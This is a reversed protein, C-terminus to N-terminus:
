KAIIEGSFVFLLHERDQHFFKVIGPTILEIQDFDFETVMTKGAWSFLGSPQNQSQVAVLDDGLFNIAEYKIPLLIKESDSDFLGAQGNFDQVELLHAPTPPRLQWISKFGTPLILQDSKASYLGYRFSNIPGNAVIFIDDNIPGALCDSKGSVRSFVCPVVLRNHRSCFIGERESESHHGRVAFLHDNIPKPPSLINFECPVVLQRERLSFVGCGDPGSVYVLGDDASRDDYYIKPPLVFEETELFFLLWHKKGGLKLWQRNLRPGLGEIEQYRRPCLWGGRLSLIGWLGNEKILIVEGGLYDVDEYKYPLIPPEQKTSFIGWCGNKVAGFCEGFLPKIGDAQSFVEKIRFFKKEMEDIINM